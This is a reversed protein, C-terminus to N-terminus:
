YLCSWLPSFKPKKIIPFDTVGSIGKLVDLVGVESCLRKERMEQDRFGSGFERVGSRFGSEM